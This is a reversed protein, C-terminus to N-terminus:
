RGHDGQPPSAQPSTTFMWSSLTETIVQLQNASPTSNRRKSRSSAAKRRSFDFARQWFSAQPPGVLIEETLSHRRDRDAVSVPKCWSRTRLQATAEALHPALLSMGDM